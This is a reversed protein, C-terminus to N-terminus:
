ASIAVAPAAPSAAPMAPTAPMPNIIADDIIARAKMWVAVPYRRDEMRRLVAEAGERNGMALEARIMAEYTSPERFVVNSPEPTMTAPKVHGSSTRLAPHNNPAAFGTLSDGMSEFVSRAHELAGHRSYGAILVNCVYATSQAGSAALQEHLAVLQELSGVQGVVNIIAEWVVPEPVSNRRTSPHTAISNFVELAGELDGAHIGHATVLSAWHTGQVSVERDHCLDHFVRNMAPLNIPALTGYADLLLKYTHASPHVNAARMADYYHLVRERSPRTQLHLQMM